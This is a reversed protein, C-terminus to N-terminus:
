EGSSNESEERLKKKKNKPKIKVEDEDSAPAAEDPAAGAHRPVGDIIFAVGGTFGISQDVAGGATYADGAKSHMDYFYRRLDGGVRVEILPTVRLGVTLNADLGGVTMHPYLDRIQGVSLIQRWGGALAVSLNGVTVRLGVGARAYNYTTNPVHT